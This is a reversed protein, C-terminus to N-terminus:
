LQALLEIVVARLGALQVETKVGLRRCQVECVRDGKAWWRGLVVIVPYGILDADKLKWSLDKPRDDLIVDIPEEAVERQHSLADYVQAQDELAIKPSTVVVAEFPAIVRPWNLGKSDSLLDAVTAILRSVGVGHCGMQIPVHAASPSSQTSEGALKQHAADTAVIANLPKSYRTGLYFTHGLEIATQVRLRGDDCESCKDGNMTRTLRPHRGSSAVEWVPIEFPGVRLPQSAQRLTQGKDPIANPPAESIQQPCPLQESPLKLLGDFARFLQVESPAQSAITEVHEPDVNSSLDLQLRPFMQEVRSTAVEPEEAAQFGFAEMGAKTPIVVQILAKGSKDKCFWQKFLAHSKMCSKVFQSLDADKLASVVSGSSPQDHYSPTAVEENVAFGCSDCIIISDEGKTSLMHYEHSLNGGMTGSSAKAVSYPVKFAAFFASYAERVAEYTEMASEHSTDFTYLDKMMFERTRLLGQRPRAEDRFKRTVQYLRLPLDKYSHVVSGVLRTIEEEHTPSLLYKAGKRDSLQFVEPTQAGHDKIRGSKKWLSLSSLTALSVKSAGLSIM